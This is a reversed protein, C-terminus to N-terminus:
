PAYLPVADCDVADDRTAISGTAQDRLLEEVHDAWGQWAARCQEVMRANGSYIEDVTSASGAEKHAQVLDRVDRGYGNNRMWGGMSRRIDHISAAGKLVSAVRQTIVDGRLHLVKAGEKAAPFLYVDNATTKLAEGFLAAAQRSLYVRHERGGKMRSEVALKGAKIIDPPITWVGAKLDIEDVRAEAVENRRDGLLILLKIALRMTPMVRTNDDLSKWLKVIMEDTMVRTSVSKHELQNPVERAPNNRLGAFKKGWEFAGGIMTKTRQVQVLSGRGRITQCIMEIDRATIQNAPKHGITPYADREYVGRYVVKSKAALKDSALFRETLEKFTLSKHAPDNGKAVNARTDSAKKIAEALTFGDYPGLRYKQRKGGHTYYFYWDAGSQGARLVLGANGAIRYEARAPLAAAAKVAAKIVEHQPKLVRQATRGM